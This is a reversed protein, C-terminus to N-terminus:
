RGRWFEPSRATHAVAVVTIRRPSARFIIIFPFRRMQLYHHRDDFAPLTDASDAIRNLAADFDSEFHRASDTDQEAYWCLSEIFDNQAASCLQVSRM